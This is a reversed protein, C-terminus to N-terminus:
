ARPHKLLYEIFVPRMAEGVAGDGSRIADIISGKANKIDYDAEGVDGTAAKAAPVLEMLRWFFRVDLHHEAYRVARDHLEQTSLKELEQESTM